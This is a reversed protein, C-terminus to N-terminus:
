SAYFYLCYRLYLFCFLHFYVVMFSKVALPPHVQGHDQGHVVEAADGNGEAAMPASGAPVVVPVALPPVEPVPPQRIAKGAQRQANDLVEQLRRQVPPPQAVVAAYGFIRACSAFSTSPSIHVFSPTDSIYVAYLITPYRNDTYYANIVEPVLFLM